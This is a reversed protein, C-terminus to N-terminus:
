TWRSLAGVLYDLLEEDSTTSDPDNLCQSAYIRMVELGVQHVASRIAALQQVIDRCDREEDLMRQVGRAQGEIRRLRKHIQERTEGPQVHM